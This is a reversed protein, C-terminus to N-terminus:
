RKARERHNRDASIPMFHVVSVRQRYIVADGQERSRATDGHDEFKLPYTFYNAVQRSAPAPSVASAVTSASRGCPVTDIDFRWALREPAEPHFL